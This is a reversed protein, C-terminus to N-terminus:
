AVVCTGQLKEQLEEPALGGALDNSLSASAETPPPQEAGPVAEAVATMAAEVWGIPGGMGTTAAGQQGPSVATLTEGAAQLLLATQGPIVGGATGIARTQVDLGPPSSESPVDPAVAPPPPRALAPAATPKHGLIGPPPPPAAFQAEKAVPVTALAAGMAAHEDAVPVAGPDAGSLDSSCM